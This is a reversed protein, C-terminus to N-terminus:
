HTPRKFEDPLPIGKEQARKLNRGQINKKNKEAKQKTIAAPKQQAIPRQKLDWAKTIDWKAKCEVKDHYYYVPEPLVDAYFNGTSWKEDNNVDVYARMYYEGPKVYYFEATGDIAKAEKLVKDGSNLLQVMVSCSDDVGSLRVFLTAFEEMTKVKFGTKYPKSTLGYIDTFALTDVEFSYETGAMWDTTVIFHRNSSSSTTDNEIAFPVRYWASDQMCYLHIAATDMQALPSPVAIKIVDDPTMAQSVSYEIKLEPPPMISDVEEGEKAKKRLKEVKKNWKELEDTKAKMRKAYPTKSLMPVTDTNIVMNGLTDTAEYTIKVNLTDQNVLATDRIWYTVTDFKETTEIVFPDDQTYDLLEVQPVMTGPGSFFLTFRDADKREAKLYFRDTVDHLFALLTVNDPLFHTYPVPMIDKIHLSDLWVTDQRTDPKWTPKISDHTFAVQESRQSFRYNNDMDNLAYCLYTGPAVGKIVFHGQSDTRSVRLMTGCISDTSTLGVLMGKMPELDEANLVTGSVELTDIENGTSFSYTYNGMPNGENNDAIADSFDITYTTNEKLTDKLEVVITKGQAKVEAQEMQPPSIVVKENANEVKIFENFLIQVKNGKVNVGKDQPSASVVYPPDEDYWGGDPNGMRACGAVLTCLFCLLAATFPHTIHHSKISM